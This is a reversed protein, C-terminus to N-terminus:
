RSYSRGAFFVNSYGAGPALYQVTKIKGTGTATLVADGNPLGGIMLYTLLKYSGNKWTAVSFYDFAPAEAYNFHRNAIATITEDAPLGPIELAHETGNTVDHYYAKNDHVFYIINATKENTARLTASLLKSAPAVAQVGTVAPAGRQYATTFTYLYYADPGSTDRFLGYVINVGYAGMFLCEHDSGPMPFDTSTLEYAMGSANAYLVRHHTEDWYIAGWINPCYAWCDSGGAADTKPFSYKGVSTGATMIGANHETYVGASALYDCSQATTYFRYPTENPEDFFLTHHDFAKYMDFARYIAVEKDRTIVGLCHVRVKAHTDPDVVFKSYLIGLNRPAGPLPAGQTRELIDTLLRGDEMLLDLDTAGTATEKLIYHGRSYLTGIELTSKVFTTYGNARNRAYCYLTYVGPAKNVPFSLDREHGLTDYEHEGGVTNNISKALVWRYELDSDPYTTTLRPTINLTDVGTVLTYTEDMGEIEIDSIPTYTYNGQDEYCGTSALAAWLAIFISRKRM